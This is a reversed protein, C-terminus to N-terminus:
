SDPEVGLERLRAALRDARAAEADARHMEEGVDLVERGSPDCVRVQGPASFSLTVGGLDPGEYREAREVEVLRDGALRWISVLSARPDIEIHVPVGIRGFLRRKAELIRRGEREYNAESLVEVTVRPVPEDPVRYVRHEELDSPPAVLLDPAVQERGGVRLFIDGLVLAKGRLAVSVAGFLRILLRWHADTATMDPAEEPLDIESSVAMAIM